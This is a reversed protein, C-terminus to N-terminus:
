GSVVRALASVRSTGKTGVGARAFCLDARDGLNTSQEFPCLGNVSRTVVAIRSGPLAQEGEQEHCSDRQKKEGGRLHYRRATGKEGKKGLFSKVQIAGPGWEWFVEGQRTVRRGEQPKKSSVGLDTALGISEREGEAVSAGHTHHSVNRKRSWARTHEGGWGQPAGRAPRAQGPAVLLVAGKCAHGQCATGSRERLCVGACEKQSSLRSARQSRRWELLPIIGERLSCVEM